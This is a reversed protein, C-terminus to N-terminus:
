PANNTGLSSGQGTSTNNADGSEGGGFVPPAIHIDAKKGKTEFELKGGLLGGSIQNPILVSAGKKSNLSLFEL